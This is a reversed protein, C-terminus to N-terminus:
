SKGEKQFKASSITAEFIIKKDKGTDPKPKYWRIDTLTAEKNYPHVIYNLKLKESQDKVTGRKVNKAYQLGCANCLTNRGLPGKRWEPSYSIGCHTCRPVKEVKRQRKNNTAAPAMQGLDSFKRKFSFRSSNLHSNASNSNPTLNCDDFPMMPIQHHAHPLAPDLFLGHMPGPVFTPHHSPPSSPQPSSSYSPPNSDPSSSSPTLSSSSLPKHLTWSHHFATPPGSHLVFNHLNSSELSYKATLLSDAGSSSNSGGFMIHNVSPYFM